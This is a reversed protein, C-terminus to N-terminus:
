LCLVCVYYKFHYKLFKNLHVKINITNYGQLNSSKTKCWDQVNVRYNWEQVSIFIFAEIYYGEPFLGPMAIWLSECLGICGSALVECFHELSFAFVVHLSLSLSMSTTGTRRVNRSGCASGDWQETCKHLHNVFSSLRVGTILWPHPSRAYNWSEDDERPKLNIKEWVKAYWNPRWPKKGIVKEIELTHINLYRNTKATSRLVVKKPKNWQQYPNYVDALQAKQLNRPIHLVNVKLFWLFWSISWSSYLSIEHVATVTSKDGNKLKSM